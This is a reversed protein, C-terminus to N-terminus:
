ANIQKRKYNYSVGGVGVPKVFGLDRALARAGPGGPPRHDTINDDREKRAFTPRKRRPAGTKECSAPFGERASADSLRVEEHQESVETLQGRLAHPTVHANTRASPSRSGRALAAGHTFSVVSFHNM